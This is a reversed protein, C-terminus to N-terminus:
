KVSEELICYLNITHFLMYPLYSLWVAGSVIFISRLVYTGQDRLMGVVVWEKISSISGQILSIWSCNRLLPWPFNWSSHAFTNLFIGEFIYQFNYMTIVFCRPIWSCMTRNKKVLFNLLRFLQEDGTTVWKQNNHELLYRHIGNAMIWWMSM